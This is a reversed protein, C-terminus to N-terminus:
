WLCGRVGEWEGLCRLPADNPAPRISESTHGHWVQGAENSFIKQILSLLPHSLYCFGRRIGPNSLINYVTLAAKSRPPHHPTPWPPPHHNNLLSSSGSLGLSKDLPQQSDQHGFARYKGSIEIKKATTPKILLAYPLLRSM